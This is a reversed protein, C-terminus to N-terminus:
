VMILGGATLAQSAQPYSGQVSAYEATNLGEIKNRTAGLGRGNRENVVGM